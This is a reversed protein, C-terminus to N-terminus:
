RQLQAPTAARGSSGAEVPELAYTVAADLSM